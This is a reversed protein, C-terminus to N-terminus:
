IEAWSAVKYEAKGGLRGLREDYHFNFNGNMKVTKTVSAGVVDYNSNGSGNLSFDASPAYITGTFSANGSIAISTNSPLGYYSFKTADLNLNLIGNGSFKASSGAVYLKLSAGPLITLQSQGSMSFDGTVYVVADGMVLVKGQGSVSVSAVQYNGTRFVIDYSSTSTTPIASTLSWTYVTTAYTYGTIKQFDYYTVTTKNKGKGEVVTRTSVNGIYTGSAPMTISSFAGTNTTLVGSWTNPKTTTTIQQSSTVLDAPAPSPMVTSNTTTATYSYNTVTITTNYEPGFAGGSFPASVDDFYVNLDKTYHGDQIGSHSAMWTKDGANGSASGTAGTALAGWVGSGSASVTGNVSGVYGGDKSKASNYRGNDSYNPDESDFSDVRSNGVMVVNGKAIMGKMGSNVRTTTVRVTRQVERGSIPVKAYGTAIVTPQVENDMYVTYRGTDLSRSLTFQNTAATWGNAERSADGVTNLHTLAEEIGAEALPIAYNWYQSEVILRNQAEVMKFYSALAVGLIASIILTVLLASGMESKRGKSGSLIM